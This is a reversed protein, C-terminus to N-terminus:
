IEPPLVSVDNEYFDPDNHSIVKDTFDKIVKFLNKGKIERRKEELKKTWEQVEKQKNPVINQIHVAKEHLQFISNPKNRKKRRYAKKHM